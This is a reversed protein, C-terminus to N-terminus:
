FVFSVIKYCARGRRPISVAVSYGARTWSCSPPGSVSEPQGIVVHRGSLMDVLVWRWEEYDHECFCLHAHNPAWVPVTMYRSEPVELRHRVEVVLGSPGSVVACLFVGKKDQAVVGHQGWMLASISRSSFPAKCWGMCKGGLEQFQVLPQGGFSLESTVFLLASAGWSSPSWAMISYVSHGASRHQKTTVDYVVFGDRTLAALHKSDAAWCPLFYPDLNSLHQGVRTVHGSVEALYVYVPNEWADSPKCCQDVVMVRQSPAWVIRPECLHDLEGLFCKKTDGSSVDLIPVLGVERFDKLRRRYFMALCGSDHSWVLSGTSECKPMVSTVKLGSHRHRVIITKKGKWAMLQGCPSFVVEAPTAQKQERVARAAINRHVLGQTNRAVAQQTEPLLAEERTAKRLLQCTSGLNRLQVLNLHRLVHALLDKSCEALLLLPCGPM